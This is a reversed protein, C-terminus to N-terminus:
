FKRSTHPSVPIYPPSFSALVCTPQITVGGGGRQYFLKLCDEAEQSSECGRGGLVSLAM